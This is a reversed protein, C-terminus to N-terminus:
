NPIASTTSAAQKHKSPMQARRLTTSAECERSRNNRTAIRQTPRAHTVGDNPYPM